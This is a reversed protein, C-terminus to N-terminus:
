VAVLQAARAEQQSRDHLGCLFEALRRDCLAVQLIHAFDAKRFCDERDFLKDIAADLDADRHSGKVTQAPADSSPLWQDFQADIALAINIFRELRRAGLRPPAETPAESKSALMRLVPSTRTDTHWRGPSIESWFPDPTIEEFLAANACFLRPADGQCGKDSWARCRGVHRCLACTYEAEVLEDQYLPLNDLKVGFAQMMRALDARVAQRRMAAPSRSRESEEQIDDSRSTAPKDSGDAGVKPDFIMNRDASAKLMDIIRLM